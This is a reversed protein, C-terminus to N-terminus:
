RDDRQEMRREFSDTSDRRVPERARHDFEPGRGWEWDQVPTRTVAPIIQILMDFLQPASRGNDATMVVVLALDPVMVLWQGGFGSGIVLSHVAQETVFRGLWWAYGYGPWVPGPRASADVWDTDIVQQGQWEGGAIVSAGVKLLARPTLHFGGPTALRGDREYEWSIEDPEILGGFAYRVLASVSLSTANALVDGLVAIGGGNYRFVTGPAHALPRSLVFEVVDASRKSQTRSNNRSGYAADSEDWEIGSTMTLLHRITIGAKGGQLLHLYRPLYRGISDDVSGIHGDSIARGVMLSTLSKSISEIEHPEDARRGRFYEELILHGDKM